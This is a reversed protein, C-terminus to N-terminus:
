QGITITTNLILHDSTPVGNADLVQLRSFDQADYWGIEIRYAGPALNSFPLEYNDAIYEGTVWGTTPRAGNMPQADKQAVVKSVKDLLHVFVTYPKDMKERANWHLTLKLNDNPKLNLTPVDYGVLALNNNFNADQSFQANPKVFVRDTKEITFAALDLSSTDSLVVRLPTAGSQANAPITVLYQGRVIEGARWNLTPFQRNAIPLGDSTTNGFQIQFTYDRNPKSDARWFLTLPISEGASAQDRGLQYGLLTFPGLPQSITSQINLSAFTAPQTAPLVPIPGMRITRGMPAGNPALVDLGSPNNATYFTVEVFYNDPPTGPLLPVTYAGFLNEDKKWRMTPYNYGAPRRDQKGWVNGAADRVRLAVLYDEDFTDLSQWYLSFSAGVDAPTPTRADFGLLKVKDKFNAERKTGLQPENSFKANADLTWHRLRVHWFNADAMKQEIGHATLMMPVVGNPDVVEDQWAVLWVGRKGALTANLDRAVDFGLVREANLTPEDPLRVQTADGDFYYNFAPFM